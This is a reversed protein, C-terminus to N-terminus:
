ISSNKTACKFYLLEFSCETLKATIIICDRGSFMLTETDVSADM